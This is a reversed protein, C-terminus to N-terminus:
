NVVLSLRDKHSTLWQTGDNVGFVIAGAVGFTMYVCLKTLQINVLKSGYM